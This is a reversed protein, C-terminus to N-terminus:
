AKFKEEKRHRAIYNKAKDNSCLTKKREEGGLGELGIGRRKRRHTM